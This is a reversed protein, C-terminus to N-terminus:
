SGQDRWREAAARGEPTALFHEFPVHLLAARAEALPEDGGTIRADVHLRRGHVDVLTATLLLETNIPVPRRYRVFLRATVTPFSHWTALLGAAEDLAASVLGGHAIGPGGQLREDFSFYAEYETLGPAAPHPLHLGNPNDGCGFCSPDHHPPIEM